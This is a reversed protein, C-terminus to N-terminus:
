VLCKQLSILDTWKRSYKTVFLLIFLCFCKALLCLSYCIASSNTLKGCLIVIYEDSNCIATIGRLLLFHAARFGLSYLFPHLLRM